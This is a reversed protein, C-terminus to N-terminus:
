EKLQLIKKKNNKKKSGYYVVGELTWLKIGFVAFVRNKDLNKAKRKTFKCSVDYIM